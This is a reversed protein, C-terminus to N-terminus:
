VYLAHVHDHFYLFELLSFRVLDDVILRKVMIILPGIESNVNRLLYLFMFWGTLAAVASTLYEHEPLVCRLIMTGFISAVHCLQIGNEGFLQEYWFPSQSHFNHYIIPLMKAIISPCVFTPCCDLTFYISVLQSCQM